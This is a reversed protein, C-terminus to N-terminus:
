AEVLLLIILGGLRLLVAGLLAAVACGCVVIWMATSGISCWRLTVLYIPMVLIAMYLLGVTALSKVDHVPDVAFGATMCVLFSTFLAVIDGAILLIVNTASYKTYTM